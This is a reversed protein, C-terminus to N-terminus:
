WVHSKSASIEPLAISVRQIENINKHSLISQGNEEESSFYNKVINEKIM